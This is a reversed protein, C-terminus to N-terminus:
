GLLAVALPWSEHERALALALLLVLGLGVCTAAQRGAAGRVASVAGHGILLVAALLLAMHLVQELLELGLGMDREELGHTRFEATERLGKAVQSFALVLVAAVVVLVLPGIWRKKDM